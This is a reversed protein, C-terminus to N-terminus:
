GVSPASPRCISGSAAGNAVHSVSDADGRVTLPCDSPQDGEHDQATIPAMASVAAAEARRDVMAYFWTQDAAGEIAATRVGDLTLLAPKVGFALTGQGEPYM